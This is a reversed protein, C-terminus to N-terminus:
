KEYEERLLRILVVICDVAESQMKRFNDDDVGDDPNCTLMAASGWEFMESAVFKIGHNLGSAFPNHKKRGEVLREKIADFVQDDTKYEMRKVKM